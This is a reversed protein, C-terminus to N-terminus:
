DFYGLISTSFYINPWGSVYSVASRPEDFRFLMCQFFSGSYNKLAARSRCPPHSVVSCCVSHSDLVGGVSEFLLCDWSPLFTPSLFKFSALFIWGLIIFREFRFKVSLSIFNNFFPNFNLCISLSINSTKVDLNLGSMKSDIYSKHFFSHWFSSNFDTSIQFRLCDQSSLYSSSYSLLFMNLFSSFVSTSYM